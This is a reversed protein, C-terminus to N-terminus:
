INTSFVHELLGYRVAQGLGFYRWKRGRSDKWIVGEQEAIEIFPNKIKHNTTGTYTKITPIYWPPILDTETIGCPETIENEFGEDLGMRADDLVQLDDDLDTGGSEFTPLEEAWGQEAPDIRGFEEEDSDSPFFQEQELLSNPDVKWVTKQDIFPRYDYTITGVHHALGRAFRIQTACNLDDPNNKCFGISLVNHSRSAEIGLYGLDAYNRPAFLNKDLEALRHIEQWAFQRADREAWCDWYGRSAFNDEFFPNEKQFHHGMEHLLVELVALWSGLGPTLPWMIPHKKCIRELYLFIRDPDRYYQGFLKRREDYGDEGISQIPDKIYSILNVPRKTQGAYYSCISRMENPLVEGYFEM